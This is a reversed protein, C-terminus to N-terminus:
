KEKEYVGRIYLGSLKPLKLDCEEVAYKLDAPIVFKEKTDNIDFYKIRAGGVTGVYPVGNKIVIKCKLTKGNIELTGKYIDRDPKGIRMDVSMHAFFDFSYQPFRLEAPFAIVQRDVDVTNEGDSYIARNKGIVQFTYRKDKSIATYQLYSTPAISKLVLNYVLLAILFAIGGIIGVTRLVAYDKILSVILLALAGGGLVFNLALQWYKVTYIDNRVCSIGEACEVLTNHFRERVSEQKKGTEEEM